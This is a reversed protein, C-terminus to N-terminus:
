KLRKILFYRCGFACEDKLYKKYEKIDNYPKFRSNGKDCFGKLRLVDYSYDGLIYDYDDFYDTCKSEVEEKNYCGREDELIEFKNNNIIIKKNM